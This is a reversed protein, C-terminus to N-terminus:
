RGSVAGASSMSPTLSILSSLRLFRILFNNKLSYTLGISGPQTLEHNFNLQDEGRFLIPLIPAKAQEDEDNHYKSEDYARIAISGTPEMELALRSVGHIGVWM